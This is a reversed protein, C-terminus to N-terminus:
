SKKSRCNGTFEQQRLQRAILDVCPTTPRKRSATKRADVLHHEVKRGEGEGM